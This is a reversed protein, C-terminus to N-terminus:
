GGGNAPLANLVARERIAGAALLRRQHYRELFTRLLSVPGQTSLHELECLEQGYDGLVEPEARRAAHLRDDANASAV